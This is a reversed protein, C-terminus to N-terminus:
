KCNLVVVLGVGFAHRQVTPVRFVMYYFIRNLERLIIKSMCALGICVLPLLHPDSKEWGAVATQCQPFWLAKNCWSHIQIETPRLHTNNKRAANTLCMWFTWKWVNPVTLVGQTKATPIKLIFTQTHKLQNAPNLTELLLSVSCLDVGQLPIGSQCLPTPREKRIFYLWM